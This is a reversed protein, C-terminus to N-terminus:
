TPGAEHDAEQRFAKPDNQRGDREAAEENEQTHRGNIRLNGVHGARGLAGCGPRQRHENAMKKAVGNRGRKKALKQVEIKGTLLRKQDEREGKHQSANLAEALQEETIIQAALLLEGLENRSNDEEIVGMRRLAEELDVMQNAVVWLAKSGLEPTLHQERILSHVQTAAQAM